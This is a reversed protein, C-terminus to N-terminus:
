ASTMTEATWSLPPSTRFNIPSPVRAIKADPLRVCSQWAASPAAIATRLPIASNFMRRSACPRGAVSM